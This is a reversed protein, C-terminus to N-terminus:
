VFLGLILIPLINSIYLIGNIVKTTFLVPVGKKRQLKAFTSLSTRVKSIDKDTLNEFIMTKGQDLKQWQYKNRFVPKFDKPTDIIKM